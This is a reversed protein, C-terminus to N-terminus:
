EGDCRMLAELTQALNNPYTDFLDNYYEPVTLNPLFHKFISQLHSPYTSLVAKNELFQIRAIEPDNNLQNRRLQIYLGTLEAARHLTKKVIIKAEEIMKHLFDVTDLAIHVSRFRKSRSDITCTITGPCKLHVNQVNGLLRLGIAIDMILPLSFTEPIHESISETADSIKFFVVASHFVIPFHDFLVRQLTQIELEDCVKMSRILLASSSNRLRINLLRNFSYVVNYILQRPVSQLSSRHVELPSLMILAAIDCLDISTKSCLDRKIGIGKLHLSPFTFNKHNISVNTNFFDILQTCNELNFSLPLSPNAEYGNSIAVSLKSVFHRLLGKVDDDLM